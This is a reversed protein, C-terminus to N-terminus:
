QQTDRDRCHGDHGRVVRRDHASRHYRDGDAHHDGVSQPSWQLDASQADAIDAFQAQLAADNQQTGAQVKADDQTGSGCRERYQQDGDAAPRTQARSIPRAIFTCQRM